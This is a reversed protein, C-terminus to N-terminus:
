FLKSVNWIGNIIIPIVLMFMFIFIWCLPAFPEVYAKWNLSEAPNRLFIQQYSETISPLFDVVRSRAQTITFEAPAIDLAGEDLM